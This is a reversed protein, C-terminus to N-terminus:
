ILRLAIWNSKCDIRIDTCKRSDEKIYAEVGKENVKKKNFSECNKQEVGDSNIHLM